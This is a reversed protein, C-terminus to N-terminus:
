RISMVRSPIHTPRLPTGAPMGRDDVSLLGRPSFRSWCPNGMVVHGAEDIVAVGVPLHQLIAALRQESRELEAEAARKATIDRFVLVAGVMRSQVDMIPAASDDISIERGQRSILVTHNALGVMKGGRLVRAVPNEVTDRSEENVIRFVEELARGGGEETTWGTLKEAVPNLYSVVGASDTTIVGDGISQLTVRLRERHEAVEAQAEVQPTIDRIIKSAGKIQGATDRLPSITISLHIRKGEKTRRVTHFLEISEERQIRERIVEVEGAHDLPSLISVPQGIIEAATFGFMREAGRNWSTIVSDRDESLIADESSV